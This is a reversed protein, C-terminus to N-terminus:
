FLDDDDTKTKKKSAVQARKKEQRNQVKTKTKAYLSKLIGLTKEDHPFLWRLLAMAIILTILKEPTFPFWLLAMYTGAVAMMWPIEFYTGIAMLIYSWGNTIMWALAVCLLLRPNLLFQIIKIIKQKM